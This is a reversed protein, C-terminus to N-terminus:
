DSSSALGAHFATIVAQVRDRADLKLFVRRVHTKVTTEGLGLHAAIEGNSLGEAMLVLVDRERDTLREILRQAAPSPTATYAQILRNTVTPAFMSGGSRISRLAAPLEATPHDKLLFATAGYSLSAFVYEDLDFTTLMVVKTRNAPDNVIRRCAELGDLRPMQVDLLIVDPRHRAVQAVAEHGDIAEGLVVVDRSRDLVMRLGTRILEQDDAIVISVPDDVNMVHGRALLPLSARVTWQRDRLGFSLTGGISGVREAMGVLGYGTGQPLGIVDNVITLVVFNAEYSLVVDIAKRPAHRRANTVSEQVV